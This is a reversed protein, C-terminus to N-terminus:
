RSKQRKYIIVAAGPQDKMAVPLGDRMLEGGTAETEGPADLRTLAYKAGADLGRLKLRASEYPSETRRFAQVMGEGL